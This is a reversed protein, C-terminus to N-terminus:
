PSTLKRVQGFSHALRAQHIAAEMFKCAVEAEDESVEIM